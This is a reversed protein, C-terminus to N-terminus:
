PDPHLLRFRAWADDGASSWPWLKPDRCLRAKVPNWEIYKVVGLFHDAHRIWRDYSEPQWLRGARGLLLNIERASGGKVRRMCEGLDVGPAPTLLAHAHNPMVCWAHLRYLRGHFQFLREQVVRAARPDRLHCEGCGADCYAEVRRGMEAKREGEPLAAVEARMAELAALPIADALHFTVFQTLGAGDVHPLYGRSRREM